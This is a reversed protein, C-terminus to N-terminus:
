GVLKNLKLSFLKSVWFRLCFIIPFFNITDLTFKSCLNSENINEAWILKFPFDDVQTTKHITVFQLIVHHENEKKLVLNYCIQRLICVLSCKEMLFNGELHLKQNFPPFHRHYGAMQNNETVKKEEPSKGIIVADVAFKEFFIIREIHEEPVVGLIGNQCGQRFTEPKKKLMTASFTERSVYCHM